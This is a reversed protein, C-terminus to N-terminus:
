EARFGKRATIDVPAVPQTTTKLNRVVRQIRTQVELSLKPDKMTEELTPVVALGMDMLAKHAKDRTQFDEADLQAVLKKVEDASVAPASTTAPASTPQSTAAPAQGTPIRPAIGAVEQAASPIASAGLAALMVAAAKGLFVPKKSPDVRTSAIIAELQAAPSVDLMAAESADLQLGIQRAAQSREALLKAKFQSDVVAKKLLVEIGRPIQVSM